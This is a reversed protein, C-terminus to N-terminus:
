FRAAEDSLAWVPGTLHHRAFIGIAERVTWKTWDTDAHRSYWEAAFSWVQEIPRVDGKPIGRSACWEDVQAEDRFLLQISCTYVVNDWAHKMPIPFHVVYDTDLLKGNEIRITAHDDIAGLRTEITASGGALIRGALPGAAQGRLALRVEPPLLDTGGASTALVEGLWATWDAPKRLIADLFRLVEVVDSTQEVDSKTSGGIVSLGLLVWLPEALHLGAEASRQQGAGSRFTALQHWYAILAATLTHRQVVPGVPGGGDLRLHWFDKGYRDAHFRDYAYDFLVSKAYRDFAHEAEAVQGFTASFEILLGRCRPDPSGIGALDRQLKKWVSAEAQQGKHGEDVFVLNRGDQFVETPITVGDGKKEAALKNLDLVIVTDPPLYRLTSADGDLPYAFVPWQRLGRLQEAHQRTLAESPTILLLRDWHQRFELLALAAHLVHTKGSATAMWFAAFQLDTETFRELVVGPPPHAALRENLRALLATPDSFRADLWHAFLLLALYQAYRPALQAKLCAARLEHHLATLREGTHRCLAALALLYGGEEFAARAGLTDEVTALQRMATPLPLGLDASLADRLILATKLRAHGSLKAPM